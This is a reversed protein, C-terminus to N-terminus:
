DEFREIVLTANQGGFGLNNSLAVKVDVERNEGYVVDLNIEPDQNVTGRTKPVIGDRLVFASALVEAAGAAGLLHGTNGKISSVPIESARDGLAITLAQAEYKDNLPTSTGHANYYDVDEPNLGADDLAIKIAMSNGEGTPDPSTIHYGDSTAGYGTIEALIDAGRNVASELSEIVLVVAGEGMLFGSRDKDFPRSATEKDTNRTLATMNDFAVMATESITAEFGGTLAVDLYGDAIRHFAEGIAHTSSACATSLVYNTGRVPYEMAVRGSTMNSIYKPIFFPSISRSSKNTEVFKTVQEEISTYGGIGTGYIVGVRYPDFDEFNIKSNEVAQRTAYLGFVTAKDMRRIEKHEFHDKPNFDKIEAALEVQLGEIELPFAQITDAGNKGELLGNWFDEVNNGIPTLAGAGTIVVRRKGKRSLFNM